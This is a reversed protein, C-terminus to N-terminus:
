WFECKLNALSFNATQSHPVFHVKMETVEKERLFQIVSLLLAKRQLGTGAPGQAKGNVNQFTLRKIHM